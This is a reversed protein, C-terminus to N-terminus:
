LMTERLVTKGGEYVINNNGIGLWSLEAMVLSM